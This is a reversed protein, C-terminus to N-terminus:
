TQWVNIKQYFHFLNESRFLCICHQTVPQCFPLNFPFSVSAIGAIDSVFSQSFTGSRLLTEATLYFFVCAQEMLTLFDSHWSHSLFFSTLSGPLAFLAAPMLLPFNRVWQFSFLSQLQLLSLHGHSEDWADHMENAKLITIKYRLASPHGMFDGHPLNLVLGTSRGQAAYNLQAVPYWLAM